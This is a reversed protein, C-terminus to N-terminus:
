EAQEQEALGTHSREEWNVGGVEGNKGEVDTRMGTKLRKPSGRTGRYPFRQRSMLLSAM